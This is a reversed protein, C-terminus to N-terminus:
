KVAVWSQEENPDGGLYRLNGYQRGVIYPNNPQPTLTVTPPTWGPSIQFSPTMAPAQLTGQIQPQPGTIWAPMTPPASAEPQSVAQPPPLVADATFTRNNQPNFISYKGGRKVVELGYQAARKRLEEFSSAHTQYLNAASEADSRLKALEGNANNIADVAAQYKAPDAQLATLGKAFPLYEGNRNKTWTGPILSREQEAAALALTKQAENLSELSKDHRAGLEDAQDKMAEAFNQVTAKGESELRQKEKIPFQYQKERAALEDRHLGTTIGFERRREAADQERLALALSQQAAQQKMAADRIEAEQALKALQFRYQNRAEEAAAARAMNAQEIGANFTAWGHRQNAISDFGSGIIPVWSPNPM